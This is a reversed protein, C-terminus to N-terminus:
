SSYPEFGVSASKIKKLKIIKSPVCFSYLRRAPKDPKKNLANCPHSPCVFLRVALCWGVALITGSQAYRRAIFAARLLVTLQRLPQRAGSTHPDSFKSDADPALVRITVLSGSGRWRECYNMWEKMWKNADSLSTWLCVFVCVCMCVCVCVFVCVCVCIFSLSICM